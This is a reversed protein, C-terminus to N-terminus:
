DNGLYAALAARAAGFAEVKDEYADRVVAYRETREPAIGQDLIEGHAAECAALLIDAEQKLALYSEAAAHATGALADFDPAADGFDSKLLAWDGAPDQDIEVPGQAGARYGYRGLHALARELVPNTM